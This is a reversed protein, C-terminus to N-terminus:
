GYTRDTIRVVNPGSHNETKFLPQLVGAGNQFEEHGQVYWSWGVTRVGVLTCEVPDAHRSDFGIQITGGLSTAARREVEGAVNSNPIDGAVHVIHGNGIGIYCGTLVPTFLFNANTGTPARCVYGPAYDLWYAKISRQTGLKHTKRHPTYPVLEVGPPCYHLDFEFTPPTKTPNLQSFPGGPIHRDRVRLSHSRLFNEPNEMFRKNLGQMLLGERSLGIRANRKYDECRNLQQRPLAQRRMRCRVGSTQAYTGPILSSLLSEGLPPPSPKRYPGGDGDPTNARRLSLLIDIRERRHPSHESYLFYM